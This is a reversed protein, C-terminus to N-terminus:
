DTKIKIVTVSGNELKTDINFEWNLLKVRSELNQVGFGKKIQQIDIGKGNEKFEMTLFEFEKLLTVQIITAESHKVANSFLEQIVRYFALEIEPKFRAHGINIQFQVKIAANQEIRVCLGELAQQLGYDILVPPLLDYIISRVETLCEDTLYRTNLLLIQSSENYGAKEIRHLNFKIASLVQAVGDHLAEALQKRDSELTEIVAKFQNTQVEGLLKEATAKQKIKRRQYIVMFFTLLVIFLIIM